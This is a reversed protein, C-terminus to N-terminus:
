AQQEIANHLSVWTEIKAALQDDDPEDAGWRPLFDEVGRAPADKGRYANYTLAALLARQRNEDGFPELQEFAQWETLEASSVTALLESM